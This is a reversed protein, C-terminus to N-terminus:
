CRDSDSGGGGGGGSGGRSGVPSKRARRDIRAMTARGMAVTVALQGARQLVHGPPADEASSSRQELHPLAPLAVGETALRTSLM